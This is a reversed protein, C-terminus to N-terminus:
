ISGSVCLMAHVILVFSISPCQCPVRLAFYLVRLLLRGAGGDGESEESEDGSEDSESESDALVRYAGGGVLWKPYTAIHVFCELRRDTELELQAHSALRNARGLLQM